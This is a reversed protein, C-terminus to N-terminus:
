LIEKLIKNYKTVATYTSYKSKAIKLANERQKIILSENQCYNAFKKVENNRIDTPLVYGINEKIIEEKQWGEHNILIPKGAALTDFFKNASNAWLEKVDIVFSSGMNCEFYLQALDQKSIPDLIFLNKNLVKMDSASHVIDRKEAGEGVLIFIIEPNIDKLKSALEVVYNIGNVFGFTGAYLISFKPKFGIKNKLTFLEKNFGKQFRDIESINEIVVIPKNNLSPYRKIISKKMDSSLPIIASANKYLIRELFYLINQMAKNNIAGIAIVAEPWIDRTEFIFPTKHIWKKVLAPIGITLPTSSAIVVDGKLTLLKLISFWLFKLFVKSRRLYSMENAYPLYIYHIVLGEREIKTWRRTSKLEPNSTSTIMEVCYGLSTFGTSLDYSRTGGSENPFKFYQHLYIIRM